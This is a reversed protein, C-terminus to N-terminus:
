EFFKLCEQCSAWFKIILSFVRAFLITTTSIVDSPLMLMSIVGRVYVTCYWSLVM